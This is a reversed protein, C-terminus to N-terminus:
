RAHAPTEEVFVRKKGKKGEFEYAPQKRRDRNFDPDAEECLKRFTIQAM